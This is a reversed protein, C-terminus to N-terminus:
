RLCHASYVVFNIVKSLIHRQRGILAYEVIFRTGSHKPDYGCHSTCFTHNQKVWIIAAASKGSEVSEQITHVGLRFINPPWERLCCANQLIMETKNHRTWSSRHDFFSAVIVLKISVIPSNSDSVPLKM